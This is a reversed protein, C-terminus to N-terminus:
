IKINNMNYFHTKPIYIDITDDLLKSNYKLSALKAQVLFEATLGSIQNEPRNSQCVMM